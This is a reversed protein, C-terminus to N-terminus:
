LGKFRSKDVPPEFAEAECLPRLARELSAADDGRLRIAKKSTAHVYSITWRRPRAVVELNRDAPEWRYLAVDIGRRFETGLGAAELVTQASAVLEDVTM